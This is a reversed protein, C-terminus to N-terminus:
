SGEGEAPAEEQLVHTAYFAVRGALALAFPLPQPYSWAIDEVAICGASDLLHHYAADGKLPCHSTRRSPSLPAFVDERPLYFVPDYVDRGVELMRLARTSAALVEGDRLIRVRGSVPKLRMFHREDGPDHIAEPIGGAGGQGAETGM